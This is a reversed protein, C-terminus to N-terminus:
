SPLLHDTWVGKAHRDPDYLVAPKRYRCISISKRAKIIPNWPTFSIREAM